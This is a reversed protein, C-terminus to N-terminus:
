LQERRTQLPLRQYFQRRKKRAGINIMISFEFLASLEFDRVPSSTLPLVM